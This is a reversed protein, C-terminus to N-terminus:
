GNQINELPVVRNRHKALLEMSHSAFIFQIGSGKTIDLLAKILQRQWKINLSIEPEDIMFVSSKDRATIVYCFLLLLQQEGSSLQSAELEDDFRNVVRFGKELKFEVRKDNLFGNIATVFDDIIKYIPEVADLKSELSKVYPKLLEAALKSKDEGEQELAYVFEKTSLETALQYRSHQKLKIEIEKLRDVLSVAEKGTNDIFKGINPHVIRNVVDTYVSHVNTSGQNTGIIAKKGIWKSASSLAQTLGIERSRQVLESISSPTDFHMLRRLEVEDNPDSVTDSELRRDANLMFMTPTHESLTNIYVKEGTPIGDDDTLVKKRKRGRKFSGDKNILWEIYGDDVIARETRQKTYNWRAMVEGDKEIDLRLYSLEEEEIRKATLSVGTSLGVELLSFDAKYLATRHGRNDASSLLHYVLRLLTSKGVGNDGYLIVANSFLDASPLDYSYIGFLDRVRVRAVSITDM